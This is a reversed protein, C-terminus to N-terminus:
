SSINKFIKMKLYLPRQVGHKIVFVFRAIKERLHRLALPKPLEKEIALM